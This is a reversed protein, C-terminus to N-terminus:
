FISGKIALPEKGELIHLNRSLTEVYVSLGEKRLTKKRHPVGWLFNVYIHVRRFPGM